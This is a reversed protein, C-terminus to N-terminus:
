RVNLDSPTVMMWLVCLQRYSQLSHYHVLFILSGVIVSSEFIFNYNSRLLWNESIHSGLLDSYTLNDTPIKKVETAMKPIHLHNSCPKISSYILLQPLLRQQRSAWPPLQLYLVTASNRFQTKCIVPIPNDNCCNNTESLLDQGSFDSRCMIKVACLNSQAM